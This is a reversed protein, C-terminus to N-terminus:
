YVWLDHEKNFLTERVRESEYMKDTGNKYNSINDDTFNNVTSKTIYSSFMRKEFFDDWTIRFVDNDPNYVQYRALVPRAKPYYIWFLPQVGKFRGEEDYKDIVPCIGIIRKVERGLNRDFIVDEKVRFKTVDEPKFDRRTISYTIEGTVPNTVPVTDARGALKLMIDDYKMETTFRDDFVEYAKIEGNRVAYLLMEIFFGGGSEEDGPYRFAANQKQYVDIMRWVRKKYLVDNERITAWPAVFGRHPVKEVVNDAELSPKWNDNAKLFEPQANVNPDGPQAIALTAGLLISNVLLLIKKM